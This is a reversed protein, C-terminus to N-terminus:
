DRDPWKGTREFQERAEQERIRESDDGLRGFWGSLAVVLSGFVLTMGVGAAVMGFDGVMLAIGVVIMLLPVAWRFFRQSPTGPGEGRLMSDSM